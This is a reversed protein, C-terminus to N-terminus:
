GALGPCLQSRSMPPRARFGVSMAGLPLWFNEAQGEQTLIEQVTLFEAGAKDPGAGFAEPGWRFQGSAPHLLHRLHCSSPRTQVLRPPRSDPPPNRGWGAARATASSEPTSRPPENVKRTLSRKFCPNNLCFFFFPKFVLPRLTVPQSVRIRDPHGEGRVQSPIQEMGLPGPPQQSVWTPLVAEKRIAKYSPTGPNQQSGRRTRGAFVRIQAWWRPRVWGKCGPSCPTGQSFM